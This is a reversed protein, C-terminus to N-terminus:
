SIPFPPLFSVCLFIVVFTCSEFAYCTTSNTKAIEVLRLTATEDTRDPFANWAVGSLQEFFDPDGESLNARFPESGDISIYVPM